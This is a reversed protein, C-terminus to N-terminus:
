LREFLLSVGRLFVRLLSIAMMLLLTGAPGFILLNTIDNLQTIYSLWAIAMTVILASGMFLLSFDNDFFHRSSNGTTIIIFQMMVRVVAVLGVFIPLLYIAPLGTSFGYQLTLGIAAIFSGSGALTLSGFFLSSLPLGGIETSLSEFFRAADQRAYKAVRLLEHWRKNKIADVNRLIKDILEHNASGDWFTLDEAHIQGFGLPVEIEVPHNRDNLRVMVPLLKKYRSGWDAEDRVWRAGVSRPTWIVLVIEAAKLEREISDRYDSGAVLERDWWTTHGRAELASALRQAHERDESKYSIFIHSM